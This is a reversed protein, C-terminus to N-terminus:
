QIISVVKSLLGIHLLIHFLIYLLLFALSLFKVVTYYLIAIIAYEDLHNYDYICSKFYSLSCLVLLFALSLLKCLLQM